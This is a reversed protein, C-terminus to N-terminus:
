KLINAAMQIGNAVAQPKCMALAPAIEMWEYRDHETSLTITANDGVKAVFTQWEVSNDPVNNLELDLGVEETLERQACQEISEGPYRAGSPPTWAWDGEYDPGEHNRHLLLFEFKGARERYVVITAGFPADEAILKGDWTTRADGM